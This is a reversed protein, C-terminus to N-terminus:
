GSNEAIDSEISEAEESQRNILEQAENEWETVGRGPLVVNFVTQNAIQPGRADSRGYEKLLLGGFTRIANTSDFDDGETITKDLRRAIKAGNLGIRKSEMDLELLFANRAEMIIERARSKYSFSSYNKKYGAEHLAKNVPMGERILKVAELVEKANKLRGKSREEPPKVPFREIVEEGHDEVIGEPGERDGNREGEREGTDM